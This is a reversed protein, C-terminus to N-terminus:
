GDPTYWFILSIISRSGRCPREPRPDIIAGSYGWIFVDIGFIESFEKKMVLINHCFLRITDGVHFEDAVDSWTV